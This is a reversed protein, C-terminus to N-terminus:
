GVLVVDGHEAFDEPSTPYLLPFARYTDASMEFIRNEGNKYKFTACVSGSIQRSASWRVGLGSAMMVRKREEREGYDTKAKACGCRIHAEKSFRDAYGKRCRPCAAVPPCNNFPCKYNRVKGSAGCISCCLLGKSDYINGM